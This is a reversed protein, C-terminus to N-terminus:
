VEELTKVETTEVTGLSGVLCPAAANVVNMIKQGDPNSALKGLTVYKTVTKGTDPDTGQNLAFRAKTSKAISQVAM